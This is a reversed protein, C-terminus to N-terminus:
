RAHVELLANTLRSHPRSLNLLFSAIISSPVERRGWRSTAATM